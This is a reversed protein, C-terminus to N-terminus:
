PGARRGAALTIVVLALGTTAAAIWIAPAGVGALLMAAGVLVLSVAISVVSRM